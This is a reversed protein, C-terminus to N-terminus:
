PAGSATVAAPGAQVRQLASHRKERVARERARGFAAKTIRGAIRRSSNRERLPPPAPMERGDSVSLVLGMGLTVAALRWIGVQKVRRATRINNMRRESMLTPLSSAATFRRLLARTAIMSEDDGVLRDLTYPQAQSVRLARVERRLATTELAKAVLLTIRPAAM